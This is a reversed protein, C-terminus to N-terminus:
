VWYLQVIEPSLVSLVFEAPCVNLEAQLYDDIIRFIKWSWEIM